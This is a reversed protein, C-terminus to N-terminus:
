SLARVITCNLRRQITKSHYEYHYIRYTTSKAPLSVPQLDAYAPEIGVEAEM